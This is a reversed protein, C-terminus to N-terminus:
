SGCIAKYKGQLVQETGYVGEKRRIMGLTRLIAADLAPTLEVGDEDETVDESDSSEPESDSVDIDVDDPPLPRSTPFANFAVLLSTLFPDFLVASIRV